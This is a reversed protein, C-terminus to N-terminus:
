ENGKESLFPVNKPWLAIPIIKRFDAATRRERSYDGCGPSGRLCLALDVCLAELKSIRDSSDRSPTRDKRRARQEDPTSDMIENMFAEDVM